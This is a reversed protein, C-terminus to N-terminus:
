CDREIAIVFRGDYLCLFLVVFSLATSHLMDSCPAMRRSHFGGTKEYHVVKCDITGHLPCSAAQSAMPSPAV